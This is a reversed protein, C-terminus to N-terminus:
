SVSYVDFSNKKKKKIKVIKPAFCILVEIDIYSWVINLQLWPDRCGHAKTVIVPVIMVIDNTQTCEQDHM